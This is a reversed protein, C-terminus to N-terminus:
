MLEVQIELRLHSLLDSSYFLFTSNVDLAFRIGAWVLATIDPHHQIAVDVFKCYYEVKKLFKYLKGRPMIFKSKDGASEESVPEMTCRQKLSEFQLEIGKRDIQPDRLVEKFKNSLMAFAQEWYM